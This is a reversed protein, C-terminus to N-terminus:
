KPFATVAPRGRSAGSLPGVVLRGAGAPDVLWLAPAWRRSRTSLGGPLPPSCRWRRRCGRSFLAQFFRILIRFVVAGAAGAVGCAAAAVVMFGHGGRRWQSTLPDADLAGGGHSTGM